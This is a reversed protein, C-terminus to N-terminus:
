ARRVNLQVINQVKVGPVATGQDLAEKFATKNVSRNILALAPDQLLAAVASADDGGAEIVDLARPMASALIHRLLAEWGGEPDVTVSMVQSKYFLGLETKANELNNDQLYKLMWAKALEMRKQLPAMEEAHRKAMAEVALKDAFYIQVVQDPTFQPAGDSM